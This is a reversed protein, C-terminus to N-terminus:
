KKSTFNVKIDLDFDNTISDKFKNYSKYHYKYLLDDINLFDCNYEKQANFLSTIQNKVELEVREKVIEPLSNNTAYTSGTNPKKADSIKCYVSLDVMIKLKDLSVDLQIKPSNRLISLLYNTGEGDVNELHCLSETVKGKIMNYAFTQEQSLSFLYRGDKFIATSTLDYLTQGKNGYNQESQGQGGKSQEEGGSKNSASGSEQSITKLIPLTCTSNRSYYGVAFKRIDTLMVDRDLGADKLLIKQIAFSSINDLPSSTDIAEKATKEAFVIVASDQIRLTKAFYDLTEILNQNEFSSGLVILNCFSLKPFWGSLNGIDKIAGGVTSGTGSLLAKQNETNSDTAEPVAIQLTVFYEDDKYDIAVATVIATKEIDIIGFDNSLFMLLLLCLLAIYIKPRHMRM